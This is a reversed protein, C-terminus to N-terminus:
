KKYVLRQIYSGFIENPHDVQHNFNYLDKIENLKYIKKNIKKNKDLKIYRTTHGGYNDLTLIPCLYGEKTKYIWEGSIGDFNTIWNNSIEPINRIEDKIDYKEFGMEYYINEFYDKLIGKQLIHVAEHVLYSIGYYIDNKEWEDLEGKNLFIANDMTYPFSWDLRDKFVVINWDITIGLIKILIQDSLSCMKILMKKHNPEIEIINDIYFQKLDNPELNKFVKYFIERPKFLKEYKKYENSEYIKKAKEKNIFNVTDKTFQYFLVIISLIIFLFLYLM